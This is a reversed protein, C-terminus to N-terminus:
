PRMAGVGAGAGLYFGTWSRTAPTTKQPALIATGDHPESAHAAALSGLVPSGEPQKGAAKKSSKTDHRAAPRSDGTPSSPLPADTQTLQPGTAVPSPAQAEGPVTGCVMLPVLVSGFLGRRMM